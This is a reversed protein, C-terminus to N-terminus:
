RQSNTTMVAQLLEPNLHIKVECGAWISIQQPWDQSIMVEGIEVPMADCFVFFDM